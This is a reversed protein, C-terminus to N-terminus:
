PDMAERTSITEDPNYRLLRGLLDKLVEIEDEEIERHLEYM